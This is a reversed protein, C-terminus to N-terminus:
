REDSERSKVELRASNRIVVRLNKDEEDDGDRRGLDRNAEGDDDCEKACSLGRVDFVDVSQFKSWSFLFFLISLCM